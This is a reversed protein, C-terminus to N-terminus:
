LWIRATKQINEMSIGCDCFRIAVAIGGAIGDMAVLAGVFDGMAAAIAVDSAPDAKGGEPFVVAV